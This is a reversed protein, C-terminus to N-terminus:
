SVLRPQDNLDFAVVEIDHDRMNAVLNMGMKGLGVMGIHM